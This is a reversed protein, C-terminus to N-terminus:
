TQEETLHPLPLNWKKAFRQAGALDTDRSLTRPYRIRRHKTDFVWSIRWVGWGIYRVRHSYGRTRLLPM